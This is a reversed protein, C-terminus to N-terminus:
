SYLILRGHEINRKMTRVLFNKDRGDWMQMELNFHYDLGPKGQFRFHDGSVFAIDFNPSIVHIKIM